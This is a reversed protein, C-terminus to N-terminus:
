SGTGFVDPMDGDPQYRMVDALNIGRYTGQSAYLLGFDDIASRDAFVCLDISDSLPQTDGAEMGPDLDGVWAGTGATGFAETGGLDDPCYSAAPNSGAAGSNSAPVKSLYALGALTPEESYLTTLDVVIQEVNDGDQSIFQCVNLKDGLKVANDADPNLTAQLNVVQGGQKECYKESDSQSEAAMAAPAAALTMVMAIGLGISQTRRFKM